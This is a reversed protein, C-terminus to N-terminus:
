APLWPQVAVVIGLTLLAIGIEGDEPTFGRANDILKDLAQVLLEPAGHLVCGPELGELVLRRPALM